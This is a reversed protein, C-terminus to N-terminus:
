QRTPILGKIAPQVTTYRSQRSPPAGHDLVFDDVRKQLSSRGTPLTEDGARV